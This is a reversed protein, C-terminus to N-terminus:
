RSPTAMSPEPSMVHKGSLAGAKDQADLAYVKKDDSSYLVYKAGSNKVCSSACGGHDPKPEGKAACHSDSIWGTWSGDKQGASVTFGAALALAAIFFLLRRNMPLNRRLHNFFLALGPEHDQM